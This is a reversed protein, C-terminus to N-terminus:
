NVSHKLKECNEIVTEQTENVGQKETTEIFKMESFIGLRKAQTRNAFASRKQKILSIERCM